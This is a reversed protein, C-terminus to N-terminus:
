SASSTRCQASSVGSGLRQAELDLRVVLEMDDGVGVRAVAEDIGVVTAGVLHNIGRGRARPHRPRAAGSRWGRDKDIASGNVASQPTARGIGRASGTVIAVKEDLVGM